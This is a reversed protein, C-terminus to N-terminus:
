EMHAFPGIRYRDEPEHAEDAEPFEAAAFGGAKTMAVRKRRAFSSFLELSARNSPAVTTELYRVGHCGPLAVLKRLLTGAVGQGRAVADVGIQWVFIVDPDRPPRYAMVFGIVRGDREAVVSTHGFDRCMVLYAYATNLELAESDRVLRWMRAGDERQAARYVIRDPNPESDM